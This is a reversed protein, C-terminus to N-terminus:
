ILLTNNKKLIDSVRPKWDEGYIDKIRNIYYGLINTKYTTTNVCENFKDEVDNYDEFNDSNESILTFLKLGVEKNPLTALRFGELLWDDYDDATYHNFKVLMYVCIVIDKVDEKTMNWETYPDIDERRAKREIHKIKDYMEVEQRILINEDYSVFRLRTADKCEDITYGLEKFDDYLANFTDRFDNDKNYYILAFLGEGRCSKMALMVYPCENIIHAKAKEVDLGENKDKDIDVAIIGTYEKIDNLLRLKNFRASITVGILNEKKYKKAAKENTTNLERLIEVKRKNKQTTTTFFKILKDEYWVNHSRKGCGFFNIMTSSLINKTKAKM